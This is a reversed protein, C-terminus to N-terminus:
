CSRAHDVLLANFSYCPSVHKHFLISASEVNAEVNSNLRSKIAVTKVSNIRRSNSEVNAWPRLERIRKLSTGKHDLSSNRRRVRTSTRQIPQAGKGASSSLNVDAANSSM